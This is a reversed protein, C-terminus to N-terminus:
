GRKLIFFKFAEKTIYTLYMIGLIAFLIPSFIIILIDSLSDLIKEKRYIFPYM